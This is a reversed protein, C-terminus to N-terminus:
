DAIRRLWAGAILKGEAEGLQQHAIASDHLDDDLRTTSVANAPPEPEFPIHLRECSAEVLANLESIRRKSRRLCAATGTSNLILSTGRVVALPGERAAIARFVADLSDGAQGPTFNTDGGITRAILKRAEKFTRHEVLWPRDGIHLGARAVPRGIAGLKREIRLPVSEYAVWYSSLRFFVVDPQFDDMWREVVKALGPTPWAGRQMTEVPEGTLETIIRAAVAPSRQEEPVGPHSDSSNTLRLIRM